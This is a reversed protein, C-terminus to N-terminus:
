KFFSNVFRFAHSIRLLSDSLHLPLSGQCIFLLAVKFIRAIFTKLRTASPFTTLSPSECAQKIFSM